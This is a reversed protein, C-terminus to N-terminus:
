KDFPARIKITLPIDGLYVDPIGKFVTGNVTLEETGPEIIVTHSVGKHHFVIEAREIDKPFRPHIKLKDENVSFDFETGVIRIKPLLSNKIKLNELTSKGKSSKGYILSMYTESSLARALTVIDDDFGAFVAKKSGFNLRKARVPPLKGYDSYNLLRVAYATEDLNERTSQRSLATLFGKKCEFDCKVYTEFTAIIKLPEYFVSFDFLRVNDLSDLVNALTFLTDDCISDYNATSQEATYGLEEGCFKSFVVNNKLRVFDRDSKYTYPKGAIRKASKRIRDLTTARRCLLGTKIFLVQTFADELAMIEPFTLTRVANVANLMTEARDACFIYRSHALIKEAIVCVRPRGNVSPLNQLASFDKKKLEDLDKKRDSLTLAFRRFFEEGDTSDIKREARSICRAYIATDTPKGNEQPDPLELATKRACECFKRDDFTVSFSERPAPKLVFYLLVFIATVSFCIAYEM